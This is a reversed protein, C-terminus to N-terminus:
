KKENFGFDALIKELRDRYTHKKMIEFAGATEIQHREVPHKLYYEVKKDLDPWDKYTVYHKGDIAFEEQGPLYDTLLMSGSAIAEFFRMNIDQIMSRNFTLRCQSLLDAYPRGAESTSRLVKYKTELQELLLRRAPYTDNGLFGIDYIKKAKPNSCHSIPDCALPLYSTKDKPYLDMFASQAIYVRDVVDYYNTDQGRVMHNDIEWYCTPVDSIAALSDFPQVNIILDPKPIKFNGWHYVEINEKRKAAMEIYSATTYPYSNYDYNLLLKM